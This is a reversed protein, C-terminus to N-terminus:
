ESDERERFPDDPYPYLPERRDPAVSIADEREISYALMQQYAGESRDGVVYMYRGRGLTHREFVRDSGTFTLVWELADRRMPEERLVRETDEERILWSM